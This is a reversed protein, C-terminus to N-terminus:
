EEILLFDGAPQVYIKKKFLFLQNEDFTGSAKLNPCSVLEWGKKGMENLNKIIEDIPKYLYNKYTYEYNIM